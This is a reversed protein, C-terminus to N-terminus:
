FEPAAPIISVWPEETGSFFGNIEKVYKRHAPIFVYKVSIKVNLVCQQWDQM